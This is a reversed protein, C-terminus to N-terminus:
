SKKHKLITFGLADPGTHIGIVPSAQSFYFKRYNPFTTKLLESFLKADEPCNTHIAAIDYGTDGGVFSLGEQLMKKISRKRGRAKVPTFIEGDSNCSIVPHLNMGTGILSAITSIRGGRKLYTLTPM